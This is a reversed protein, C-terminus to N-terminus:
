KGGNGPGGDGPGGNGPGSPGGQRGPNGPGGPGGPQDLNGPPSEPGDASHHTNPFSQDRLVAGSTRNLVVERIDTKNNATIVIRGLWSRRVNTVTYGEAQIRAVVDDAVSVQAHAPTQLLMFATLSATILTKRM